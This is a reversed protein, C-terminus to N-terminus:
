AAAVQNQSNEILDNVSEDCWKLSRAKDILTTTKAAKLVPDIEQSVTVELKLVVISQPHPLPRILDLRAGRLRAM